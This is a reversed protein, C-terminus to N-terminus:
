KGKPSPALLGALAGIATAGLATLIDPIHASETPAVRAALYIAGGVAAVCVLGLATVVLRYTTVDSVFAPPPLDATVKEAVTRLTNEPDSMLKSKLDANGLIRDVLINASRIPEAM